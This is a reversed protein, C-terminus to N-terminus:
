VFKEITDLLLQMTFPKSLYEDCGAEFANARDKDFAHATVAIVPIHSYEKSAKLEKTLELGDKAGKISIDMLIIDVKNNKLIEAVGDSSSTILVKYKSEIFRRIAIQNIQDDEVLLVLKNKGATQNIGPKKASAKGAQMSHLTGKEKSEPAKNNLSQIKRDFRITFTTGEGKKSVVSISAGNLDLFKKVLSLGLGVGEYARGYGMDEQWYPEFIKTIYDKEIGIGSDKIDLMVEDNSGEYITVKVFGKKTYKIANDILNSVAQTVSYEDAFIRSDKCRNEFSLELAAAKAAIMYGQVLSQCILSLEMETPTSPYEGVQLRSFNLILDVTRIIRKSSINVSTFLELEEETANQAYTDRILSTMGLIGNLPTRIEHSINAIFADKLKNSLEAMEKAKILEQEAQKRETIDTAVGSLGIINGSTDKIVSANLYVPFESGDKKLNLLEGEWGGALTAPLIKEVVEKSNNPSRVIGIHKGILEHEEYGYTKLFTENVFIIRDQTDTISVCQGVSKVMHALMYIQKESEKRETINIVTGDYYLTEGKSNRIARASESVWIEKGDKRKWVSEMEKIEGYKEIPEIFLERPYFQVFGEQTLDIKKLEEFSAYGLMSVLAPNAMLIKGDPSTRYIGVIANLYLSRFREESESLSKEAKQREAIEATLAATREEVLEELHEHMKCRYLAAGIQNGIGNLMALDDDSFLIQETGVLNLIGMLKDGSKLPITAHSRLGFTEGKANKIRECETVNMSRNIEGALVKRRCLCDGEMAGPAELAPPLGRAGVLKFDSGDKADGNTGVYVSFWGARVDPLELALDLVGDIVEQQITARNLGKAIQYIGRLIQNTRDLQQERIKLSGYLEVAQEYTSILLDLIQQRESTIFHKEGGLYLEVGVRVKNSARLKRNTLINDIRMILHKADYPKRIFNDAGCKLAEIVDAPGSLSTLLVIPTDKLNEDSRIAKCLEYGNMEPMLIDSIIIAPLYKRAAELGEKGNSAAIVKYNNEELLYRLQELQTASDEVILIEQNDNSNIKKKM